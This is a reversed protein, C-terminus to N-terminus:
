FVWIFSTNNKNLIGKLVKELPIIYTM